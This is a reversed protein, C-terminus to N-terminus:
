KSNRRGPYSIEGQFVSEAPGSLTIDEVGEGSRRFDVRLVDGHWCTVRVPPKVKNNLAAVVACATIGTGCAPTEAEVGREYTRVRLSHKGTIQMFDINAGHPAFVRHRRLLPGWRELDVNEINKTEVVVHPVGTNVFSCIVARRGARVPFNLRIGSAPPMAVQAGKKVVTAKLIGAETQITMTKRAIGLDCAARAACRAGNGCMGAESGDPNFFRMCFSAEESTQLLILGEAGIGDHSSCIHRIWRRDAAPFSGARDDVLIFDNGAGHMKRFKIKM